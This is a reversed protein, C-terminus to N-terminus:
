QGINSERERKKDVIPKCFHQVENKFGNIQLNCRGLCGAFREMELFM